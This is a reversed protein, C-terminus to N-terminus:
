QTSQTGYVESLAAALRTPTPYQYVMRVGVGTNLRRRLGAAIRAAELSTAGSEFLNDGEQTNAGLVARWVGLVTSQVDEVASSDSGDFVGVILSKPPGIMARATRIASSERILSERDVKGNNNVPLAKLVQLEDPVMYSPLIADLSERAMRLSASEDTGSELVVAACLREPPTRDIFIACDVVQPARLLAARVDGLEVRFGRVKVQDDVRGLFRLNGDEFWVARDGTSYMKEVSGPRMVEDSFKEATLRPSGFYGAAVQVGAIYLNGEVGVACPRLNDDLVYYRANAVPRGYPISPWSDDVEGVDYFNSWVTAETAGGLVTVQAAPFNARARNPLSVPVWDGSLFIRRLDPAKTDSYILIEALLAPASDWFTIGLNQVMSGLLEPDALAEAPPVCVTGGAALIGFIDYVSLDFALSTVWLLRDNPLVSFRENVWEILNVVSTHRVVVGKPVGTSGSTFIVYATSDPTPPTLAAKVILDTPLGDAPIQYKGSSAVKRIIVDFRDCLSESWASGDRREVQVEVACESRRALDTIWSEHVVLHRASIVTDADVLDALVVAGGVPLAEICASVVFRLYELDPFFQVVSALLVVDTKPPLARVVDHALGVSVQARPVEAACRAAAVSSPDIAVYSRSMPELAKAVLGVGCGIELVNPEIRAALVLDRVHAVYQDVEDPQVRGYDAVGFGSAEALDDARAVEDWRQVLEDVCVSLYIPPKPGLCLIPTEELGGRWLAREALGVLSGSALVVAPSVDRLVQAMREVPWRVDLPVYAGGARLVAVIAQISYPTHDDLVAVYTGVGVGNDTLIGALEGSDSWLDRYTWELTTTDRVAVHDPERAVAAALLDVITADSSYKAETENWATPVADGNMASRIERM